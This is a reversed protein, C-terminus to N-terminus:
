NCSEVAPVPLPVTEDLIEPVLQPVFQAAKGAPVTTVNVAVGAVPDVNAPHLPAHEPVPWHLTLMFDFRATTAMKLRCPPSVQTPDILAGCCDM